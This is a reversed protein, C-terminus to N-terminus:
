HGPARVAPLRLSLRAGLVSSSARRTGPAAGAAKNADSSQLYTLMLEVSRRSRAFVVTQVHHAHLEQALRVSELMSSKRLGLDPNVVPPNYLLFQRPGRASGDVDILEVPRGILGEALERPNGITASSLIFQPEAGHFAAVRQLRRIVNAVHSGFVGRYTHMEDIVVFRLGRFFEDWNTHHPLIGTHLMDPNSLILRANKRIWPRQGQPTDGDYIAALSPASGGTEAGAPILKGLSTLQDQALAKTPFLYLARASSSDLLTALVPLNYALTKGSATGTALVVNKGSAAARWAEAQHSYLSSIGLRGLAAGLAPPVDRPISETRAPREPLRQWVAVNSATEPDNKWHDILADLSMPPLVAARVHATRKDAARM